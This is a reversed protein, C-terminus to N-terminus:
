GNIEKYLDYKAWDIKNIDSFDGEGLHLPGTPFGVVHTTKGTEADRRKIYELTERYEEANAFQFALSGDPNYVKTSGYESGDENVAWQRWGSGYFADAGSETLGRLTSCGHAEAIIPRHSYEERGFWFTEDHNEPKPCEVPGVFWCYAYESHSSDFWVKEIPTHLACLDGIERHWDAIIHGQEDDGYHGAENMLLVTPETIGVEKSWRLCDLTYEKQVALGEPTYFDRIGQHNLNARFIPFNYRSMFLIQRYDIHANLCAKAIRKFTQEYKPNKQSFDVKGDRWIWPIAHLDYGQPPYGAWGFSHMASAGTQAVRDILPRIDWSPNNYTYAFIDILHLSYNKFQPYVPHPPEEGDSPDPFELPNSYWHMNKGDTNPWIIQINGDSWEGIGGSGVYNGPIVRGEEEWPYPNKSGRMYHRLEVGNRTVAHIVGRSDTYFDLDESARGFGFTGGHKWM